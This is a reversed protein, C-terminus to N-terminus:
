RIGGPVAIFQLSPIMNNEVVWAKEVAEMTAGQWNVNRAQAPTLSTQFITMAQDTGSSGPMVPAGFGVVQVRVGHRCSVVVSEFETMPVDRFISQYIQFTRYKAKNELSQRNAYDGRVYPSNDDPKEGELLHGAVVVRRATSSVEEMTTSAHTEPPLAHQVIAGIKTLKERMYDQVASSARQDGTKLLVACLQSRVKPEGVGEFEEILTPIASSGLGAAEQYHGGAILFRIQEAQNNPQWRTKSLAQAALNRKARSGSRFETTLIALADPTGLQGFQSLCRSYLGPLPFKMKFAITQVNGSPQYCWVIFGVLLLVIAMAVVKTKM